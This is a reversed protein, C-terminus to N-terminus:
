YPRLIIIAQMDGQRAQAQLESRPAQRLPPIQVILEPQMLARVRQLLKKYSNDNRLAYSMGCSFILRSRSACLLSWLEAASLHGTADKRADRVALDDQRLVGGSM